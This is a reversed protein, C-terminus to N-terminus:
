EKTGLPQLIRLGNEESPVPGEPEDIFTIFQIPEVNQSTVQINEDVVRRMESVSVQGDNAIASFKLALDYTIDTWDTGLTLSKQLGLRLLPPDSPWTDDCCPIDAHVIQPNLFNINRFTNNLAHMFDPDNKNVQPVGTSNFWKILESVFDKGGFNWSNSTAWKYHDTLRSSGNLFWDYMMPDLVARKYEIIQDRTPKAIGKKILCKEAFDYYMFQSVARVQEEYVPFIQNNALKGAIYETFGELVRWDNKVRSLAGADMSVQHIMEHLLIKKFSMESETVLIDPRILITRMSRLWVAVGNGGNIMLLNNYDQITAAVMINISEDVRGGLSRLIAWNDAIYGSFRQTLESLRTAYGTGYLGTVSSNIRLFRGTNNYVPQGNRDAVTAVVSGSKNESAIRLLGDPNNIKIRFNGVSTKARNLLPYLKARAVPAAIRGGNSVLYSAASEFAAGSFGTYMDLVFMIANLSEATQESNRRAYYADLDDAIQRREGDSLEPFTAYITRERWM